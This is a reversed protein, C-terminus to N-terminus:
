NKSGERSHPQLVFLASWKCENELCLSFGQRLNFKRFVEEVKFHLVSTVSRWSTVYQDGSRRQIGSEGRIEFRNM